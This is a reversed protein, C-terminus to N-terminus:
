AYYSREVPMFIASPQKHLNNTVGDSVARGDGTTIETHGYASSYGNAGRDYVLICGAPLQSVEVSSPSIEKFNRNRRLINSMEYAHGPEWFGLGATQIANKVYKACWGTFRNAKLSLATNALKEGLRASYGSLSLNNSSVSVTETKKEQTKQNSQLPSAYPYSYPLMPQFNWSSFLSPFFQFNSFNPFNFTPFQFSNFSFIPMTCSPMFWNNLGFNFNFNYNGWFDM